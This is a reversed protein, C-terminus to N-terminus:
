CDMALQGGNKTKREGAKVEKRMELVSDSKSGRYNKIHSEWPRQQCEGDAQDQKAAKCTASICKARAVDRADAFDFPLVPAMAIDLIQQLLDGTQLAVLPATHHDLPYVKPIPQAVITLTRVTSCVIFM